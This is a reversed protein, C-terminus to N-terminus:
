REITFERTETLRGGWSHVISIRNAGPSLSIYDTTFAHPLPFFATAVFGNSINKIESGPDAAPASRLCIPGTLRVQRVSHGLRILHPAGCPLKVEATIPGTLVPATRSTLPSMLSALPSASAPGRADSSTRSAGPKIPELMLGVTVIGLVLALLATWASMRAQRRATMAEFRAEDTM